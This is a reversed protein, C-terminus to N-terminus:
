NTAANLGFFGLIVVVASEIVGLGPLTPINWGDGGGAGVGSELRDIADALDQYITVKRELEENDITTPDDVYRSQQTYTASKKIAISEVLEGESLDTSDLVYVDNGNDGQEVTPAGMPHQSLNSAGRVEIYWNEHSEPFELQEPPEGNGGNEKSTTDWVEVKGNTGATEDERESVLDDDTDETEIIKLDSDGSLLRVEYEDIDAAEFGLYAMRYDAKPITTGGEITKEEVGEAWMPYLVGWQPPEQLDPHSVKAQFGVDDGPSAAGVALLEATLRQQNPATSFQEYLDTPSILQAPDLAGEAFSEYLTTVYDDLGNKINTYAADINQLAQNYINADAVTIKSFDGTNAVIKDTGGPYPPAGPSVTRGSFWSIDANDFIPAVIRNSNGSFQLGYIELKEDRGEISDTPIPLSNCLDDVSWKVLPNYTTGDIDVKLLQQSSDSINASVEMLNGGNDRQIVGLNEKIDYAIQEALASIATNWREVINTVSRITQANFAENAAQKAESESKGELRAKAVRVRIESWALNAYPITDPNSVLFQSEMEDVFASRGEASSDAALYIQESLKKEEDVEGGGWGQWTAVAAGAAAGITLLGGVCLGGCAFARSNGVPSLQSLPGTNPVAGTGLAAVGGAAGVTKIVQRRNVEPDIGNTGNKHQTGSKM